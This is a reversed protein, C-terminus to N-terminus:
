IKALNRIIFHLRLDASIKLLYKASPRQLHNTSLHYFNPLQPVQIYLFLFTSNCFFCHLIHLLAATIFYIVEFSLFFILFHNGPNELERVEVRFEWYVKKSKTTMLYNQERLIFRVKAYTTGLM